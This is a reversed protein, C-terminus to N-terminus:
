LWLKRDYLTLFMPILIRFYMFDRFKLEFGKQDKRRQAKIKQEM